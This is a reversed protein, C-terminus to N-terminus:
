MPCEGEWAPVTARTSLGRVHWTEGWNWSTKSSMKVVTGNMSLFCVGLFQVSKTVFELSSTVSSCWFRAKELRLVLLYQWGFRINEWVIPCYHRGWLWDPYAGETGLKRPLYSCCSGFGIVALTCHVFCNRVEILM